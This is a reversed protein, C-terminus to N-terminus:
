TQGLQGPAPELVGVKADSKQTLLAPLLRWCLGLMIAVDGANFVATGSQWASRGALSIGRHLVLYDPVGGFLSAALLNSSAGALMLTCGVRLKVDPLSPAAVLWLLPLMAFLWPYRAVPPDVNLHVSVAPLGRLALVDLALLAISVGAHALALLVITRIRAVGTPHAANPRLPKAAEDFSGTHRYGGSVIGSRHASTTL